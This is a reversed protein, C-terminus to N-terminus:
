IYVYIPYPLSNLSALAFVTMDKKHEYTLSFFPVCTKIYISHQIYVHLSTKIHCSPAVLQIVILKAHTQARKHSLCLQTFPVGWGYDPVSPIGSAFLSKEVHIRNWTKLRKLEKGDQSLCSLLDDNQILLPKYLPRFHIVSSLQTFNTNSLM